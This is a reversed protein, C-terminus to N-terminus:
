NGGCCVCCEAASRSVFRIQPEVVDRVEKQPFQEWFLAEVEKETDDVMKGGAGRSEEKLSMEEQEGLAGRASSRSILGAGIFEFTFDDL